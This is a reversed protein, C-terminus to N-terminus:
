PIVFELGYAQWDHYDLMLPHRQEETFIDTMGLILSYTGSPLRGYDDEWNLYITTTAGNEIPFEKTMRHIATKTTKCDLMFLDTVLSGIHQGGSQHVQFTIDSPSAEILELSIGWDERDLYAGNEDTVITSRISVSEGPPYFTCERILHEKDDPTQYVDNFVSLAFGRYIYRFMTLGRETEVIEKCFGNEADLVAWAIIEQFSVSGDRLAEELPKTTGHLQIDVSELYRSFVDGGTDSSEPSFITTKRIEENKVVSILLRQASDDAPETVTFGM